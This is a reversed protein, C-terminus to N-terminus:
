RANPTKGMDLREGCGRYEKRDLRVLAAYPWEKDSMGDSCRQRTLSIEIEHAAGTTTISSFRLTSDVLVPVSLGFHMGDPMDPTSFVFGSTDIRVGWFPETGAVRWTGIAEPSRPDFAGPGTDNPSIIASAEDSTDPGAALSDVRARGPVSDGTAAGKGESGACASAVVVVLLARRM